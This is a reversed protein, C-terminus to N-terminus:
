TNCENKVEDIQKLMQQAKDKWEAAIEDMRKAIKMGDILEEYKVRAERDWEFHLCLLTHLRAYETASSGKSGTEKCFKLVAATREERTKAEKKVM